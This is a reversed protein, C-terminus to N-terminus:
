FYFKAGLQVIRAPNTAIVQGFHPSSVDSVVSGTSNTPQYSGPFWQTHNFTNFTEFRLEIFKSETLHIDKYLAM